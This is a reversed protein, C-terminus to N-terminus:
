KTLVQFSNLFRELAQGNRSLSPASYTLVYLRPHPGDGIMIMRDVVLGAPTRYRVELGERDGRKVTSSEVSAANLEKKRRAMEGGALDELRLMKTRDRDIEIWGVSMAAKSYWGRSAFRLGPRTMPFDPIPEYIEEPSAAALMEVRCLGDPASFVTWGLEPVWGSGSRAAAFAIGFVLALGLMALSVRALRSVLPRQAVPLLPPLPEDELSLLHPESAPNEELAEAVPLAPVKEKCWPCATMQGISTEPVQFPKGCKACAVPILM